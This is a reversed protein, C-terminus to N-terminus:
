VHARGIQYAAMARFLLGATSPVGAASESGSLDAAVIPMLTFYAVQAAAVLSSVTFIVAILRNRVTPKVEEPM